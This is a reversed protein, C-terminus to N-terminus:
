VAATLANRARKPLKVVVFYSEPYLYDEGSEDIVRLYGDREARADSLVQYVKRLELDECAENRVCVAFRPVTTPKAM